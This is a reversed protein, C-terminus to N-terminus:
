RYRMRVTMVLGLLVTPANAVWSGVAVSVSGDVALTEGIYPVMGDIKEYDVLSIKL